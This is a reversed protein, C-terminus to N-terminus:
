GPAMAYLRTVATTLYSAWSWNAGRAAAASPRRRKASPPKLCLPTPRRRPGRAMVELFGLGDNVGDGRELVSRGPVSEM